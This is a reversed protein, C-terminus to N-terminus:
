KVGVSEIIPALYKKNTFDLPHTYSNLMGKQDSDPDKVHKLKVKLLKMLLKDILTLRSYDFGGRLYFFKIKDQQELPINVRRIEDSTEERVPTAGVAFVILKKNKFKEYNGTILKIGNIGIAYMGAGYIITEYNMLDEAKVRAGELLDCKLEEALWTAYNKTFGSKSRYVVVVNKNESM